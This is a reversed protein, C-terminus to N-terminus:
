HTQSFGDHLGHLPRDGGPISEAAVVGDAASPFGTGPLVVVNYIDGSVIFGGTPDFTVWRTTDYFAPDFMAANNLLAHWPPWLVYRVGGEITLKDAPKWSDQVFADM